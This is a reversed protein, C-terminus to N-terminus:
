LKTYEKTDRNLYIFPLTRFCSKIKTTIKASHKKRNITLLINLIALSNKNRQFEFYTVLNDSNLHLVVQPHGSGKLVFTGVILVVKCLVKCRPM